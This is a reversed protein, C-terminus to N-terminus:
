RLVVRALGLEACPAVRREVVVQHRREVHVVSELREGAHVQEGAIGVAILGRRDRRVVLPLVAGVRGIREAERRRLGRGRVLTVVVLRLLSGVVVSVHVAERRPDPGGAAGGAAGGRVARQRRGGGDGGLAQHHAVVV